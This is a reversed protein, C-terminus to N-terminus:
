KVIINLYEQYLTDDELIDELSCSLALCAKLITELKANDFCKSGQEYHKLTGPNIGTKEALDAQTLRAKVRLAKLKTTAHNRPPRTKKPKEDKSGEAKLIREICERKTCDTLVGLKAAERSLEIFNMKELEEKRSM